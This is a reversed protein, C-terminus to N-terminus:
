NPTSATELLGEKRMQGPFPYASLVDFSDNNANMVALRSGDLCLKPFSLSAATQKAFRRKKKHSPFLIRRVANRATCEFPTTLM